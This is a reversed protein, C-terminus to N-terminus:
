CTKFYIIEPKIWILLDRCQKHFLVSYVLYQYTIWKESIPDRYHLFSIIGTIYVLCIKNMIKLCNRIPTPHNRCDLNEPRCARSGSRAKRRGFEPCRWTWRIELTSRISCPITLIRHRISVELCVGSRWVERLIEWEEYNTIKISFWFVEKRKTQSAECGPCTFFCVFIVFKACLKWM